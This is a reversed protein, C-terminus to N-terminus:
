CRRSRGVLLGAVGFIRLGAYIGFLLLLPHVGLSKGVWRPEVVQRVVTIVAYLLLLGVGRLVQGTCLEFIGFPLLVLGVGLVPLLDLLATVWALWFAYNLRLLLFGLLLEGFTLLFIFFYARLYRRCVWFVRERM